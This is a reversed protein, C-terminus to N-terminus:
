SQSNFDRFFFKVKNLFSVPESEVPKELESTEQQEPQEIKEESQEPQQPQNTIEEEIIGEEIQRAELPIITESTTEEIKPPELDITKEGIAFSFKIKTSLFNYGELDTNSFKQCVLGLPGGQYIASNAESFSNFDGEPGVEAPGQANQSNQWSVDEFESPIQASDEQCQNSYIELIQIRPQTFAWVLLGGFIIIGLILSIVSYKFVKLFLGFTRIWYSIKNKILPITKYLQRRQGAEGAFRPSRRGKLDKKSKAKKYSEIAEITTMLAMGSYVKKEKIKGKRILWGIYDSSYGSIKAAEKLSIYKKSKRFM